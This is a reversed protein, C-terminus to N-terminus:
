PEATNMDRGENNEAEGSKEEFFPIQSIDIRCITMTEVCCALLILGPWEPLTTLNSAEIRALAFNARAEGVDLVAM